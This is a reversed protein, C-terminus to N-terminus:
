GCRFGKAVNKITLERFTERDVELEAGFHTTFLAGGEDTIHEFSLVEGEYEVREGERWRYSRAANAHRVRDRAAAAYALLGEPMPESARAIVEEAITIPPDPFNEAVGAATRTLLVGWKRRGWRFLELRVLGERDRHIVYHENPRFRSVKVVEVGDEELQEYTHKIAGMLTAEEFSHKTIGKLKRRTNM